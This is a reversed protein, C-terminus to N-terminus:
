PEMELVRSTLVGSNKVHGHDSCYYYGRDFDDFHRLDDFDRGFWWQHVYRLADWYSELRWADFYRLSGRNCEATRDREFGEQNFRQDNRGDAKAIGCVALGLVMATASTLFRNM